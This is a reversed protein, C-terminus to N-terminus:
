SFYVANLVEHILNLKQPVGKIEKFADELSTVRSSFPTILNRYDEPTYFSALGKLLFCFSIFRNNVYDDLFNSMKADKRVLWLQKQTDIILTSSEVATASLQQKRKFLCFSEFPAIDIQILHRSSYKVEKEGGNFSFSRKLPYPVLKHFFISAATPNGFTFDKPLSNPNLFLECLQICMVNFPPLRGNSSSHYDRLTFHNDCCTFSMYYRRLFCQRAKVQAAECERYLDWIAEVDSPRLSITSHHHHGNTIEICRGTLSGTDVPQKWSNMLDMLADLQSCTNCKIKSLPNGKGLKFECAEGLNQHKDHTSSIFTDLTQSIKVLDDQQM